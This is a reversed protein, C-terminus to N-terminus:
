SHELRFRWTVTARLLAAQISIIPDEHPDDAIAQSMRNLEEAERRTLTKEDLRSALYKYRAEVSPSM